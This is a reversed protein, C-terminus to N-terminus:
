DLSTFDLTNIITNNNDISNIISVRIRYEEVMAKFKKVFEDERQKKEALIAAKAEELTVSEHKKKVM